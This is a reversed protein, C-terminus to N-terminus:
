LASEIASVLLEEHSTASDIRPGFLFHQNYM